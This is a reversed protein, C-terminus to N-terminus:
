QKICVHLRICTPLLETSKTFWLCCNGIKNEVILSYAHCFICKVAFRAPFYGAVIDAISILDIRISFYVIMGNGMLMSWLSQVDYILTKASDIASFFDEFSM